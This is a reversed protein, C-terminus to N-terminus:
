AGLVTLGVLAVGGYVALAVAVTRMLSAGRLALGAAVVAALVSGVSDATSRPHSLAGVALATIAATSAHRLTREVRPSLVLKPLALVPLARFAYSGVGVLVMALLTV